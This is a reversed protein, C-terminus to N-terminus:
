CWLQGSEHGDICLMLIAHELMERRQHSHSIKILLIKVDRNMM